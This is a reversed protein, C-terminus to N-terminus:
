TGLLSVPSVVWAGFTEGLNPFIDGFAVLPCHMLVQMAVPVICQAVGYFPTVAHANGQEEKNSTNATNRVLSCSCFEIKLLIYIIRNDFCTKRRSLPKKVRM